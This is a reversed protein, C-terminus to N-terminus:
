AVTSKEAVAILHRGLLAEDSAATIWFRREEESGAKALRDRCYWRAPWAVLREHFHKPQSLPEKILTLSAFGALRVFAYLQPFSWPTIHMHTGPKIRGGLPPFSPFFGRWLFQLRAQPYWVSPTTVVLFGTVSLCRFFQRLLLLPNGLNGLGECCCAVDYEPCEEPLGADLDHRWFRRYDASGDVYLDVGDVAAKRRLAEALWGHGSPADLVSQFSRKSLYRIVAEKSSEQM